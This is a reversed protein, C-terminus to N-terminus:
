EDVCGPTATEITPWHALSEFQTALLKDNCIPKVCGRPGVKTLKLTFTAEAGM